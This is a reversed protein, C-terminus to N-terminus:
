YLQTHNNWPCFFRSDIYCLTIYPLRSTICLICRKPAFVHYLDSFGRATHMNTLGTSMGEEVLQTSWKWGVHYRDCKGVSIKWQMGSLFISICCFKKHRQLLIIQFAANACWLININNAKFLSWIYTQRQINRSKDYLYSKELIKLKSILGSFKVCFSKNAVKSLFVLKLIKFFKSRSTPM